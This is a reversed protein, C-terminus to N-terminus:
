SNNTRSHLPEQQHTVSQRYKHMSHKETQHVYTYIFYMTVFGRLFSTQKGKCLTQIHIRDNQTEYFEIVM